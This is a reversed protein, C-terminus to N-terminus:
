VFPGLCAPGVILLLLSDTLSPFGVSPLRVDCTPYTKILHQTINRVPVCALYRVHIISQKQFM